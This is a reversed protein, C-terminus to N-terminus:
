KLERRRGWNHGVLGLLGERRRIIYECEQLVNSSLIRLFSPHTPHLDQLYLTLLSKNRKGMTNHVILVLSASLNRRDHITTITM